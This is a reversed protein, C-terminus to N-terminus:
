AAARQLRAVRSTKLDKSVMYIAVGEPEDVPQNPVSAAIFAQEIGTAEIMEFLVGANEGVLVEAGDLCLINAKSLKALVLAIAASTLYRESSSLMEVDFTKDYLVMWPEMVFEVKGMGALELLANVGEAFDKLPDRLMAARIGGKPGVKEILREVSELETRLKSQEERTRKMSGLMKEKTRASALFEEGKTVHEDFEKFTTSDPRRLDSLEKELKVVAAKANELQTSQRGISKDASLLADIEEEMVKPSDDGPTFSKVKLLEREASKREGRVQELFKEMKPACDKCLRIKGGRFMLTRAASELKEQSKVQAELDAAKKRDSEGADRLNQLKKTLEVIRESIQEQSMQRGLAGGITKAEERAKEIKTELQAKRTDHTREEFYAEDRDKKAEELAEEAAAILAEIDTTNAIAEPFVGGIEEPVVLESIRQNILPRRTRLLKEIDDLDILNRLPHGIYNADEGLLDLIEGEDVTTGMVSLLLNKQAAPAMTFYDGPQLLVRAVMSNTGLVSLAHKQVASRPGQGLGREIRGGKEGVLAIRFSKAVPEGGPERRILSAAGVGGEDTGRCLGSIAYQIADLISSKGSWNCGLFVNIAQLGDIVTHEHSRFNDLEISRIKM